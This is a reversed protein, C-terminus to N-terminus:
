VTKESLGEVAARMNAPAHAIEDLSMQRQEDTLPGHYNFKGIPYRLDPM